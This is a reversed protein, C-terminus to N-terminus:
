GGFIISSLLYENFYYDYSKIIGITANRDKLEFTTENYSEKPIFFNYNFYIMKEDSDLATSVEIIVLYHTDNFEEVYPVYGELDLDAYAEDYLKGADNTSFIESRYEYAPGTLEIGGDIKKIDADNPLAVCFNEYEKMGDSFQPSTFMLFTFFILIIFLIIMVIHYKRMLKVLDVMDM